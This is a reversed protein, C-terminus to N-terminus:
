SVKIIEPQSSTPMGRLIAEILAERSCAKYAAITSLVQISHQMDEAKKIFNQRLVQVREIFSSNQQSLARTITDSLSLGSGNNWSSQSFNELAQIGNNAKEQWLQITAQVNPHVNVQNCFFACCDLTGQTWDLLADLNANLKKAKDSSFVRAVFKDAENTAMDIAKRLKAEIRELCVAADFQPTVPVNALVIKELYLDLLLNTDVAYGDMISCQARLLSSEKTSSLVSSSTENSSEVVTSLGYPKSQMQSPHGDSASRQTGLQETRSSLVIVSAAQKNGGEAVKDIYVQAASGPNQSAFVSSGQIAMLFIGLNLMNNNM